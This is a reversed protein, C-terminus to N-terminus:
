QHNLSVSGAQWLHEGYTKPPKRIRTVSDCSQSSVQDGACLTSGSSKSVKSTRSRFSTLVSSTILVIVKPFLLQDDVRPVSTLKAITVVPRRSEPRKNAECGDCKFNKKVWKVVDPRCNGLRLMRCFDVNTPHGSNDHAIKLDRLQDVTPTFDLDPIEDDSEGIEDMDNEDPEDEETARKWTRFILLTQNEKLTM